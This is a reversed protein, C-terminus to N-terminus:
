TNDQNSRDKDAATAGLEALSLGFTMSPMQPVKANAPLLEHFIYILSQQKVLWALQRILPYGSLENRQL